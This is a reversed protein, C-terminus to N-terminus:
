SVSTALPWRRGPRAEQASAPSAAPIHWQDHGRHGSRGATPHRPPPTTVAAPHRPPPAAGAAWCGTHLRCQPAQHTERLIKTELCGSPLRVYTSETRPSLCTRLVRTGFRSAAPGPCARPRAGAWAPPHEAAEAWVRLLCARIVVHKLPCSSHPQLIHGHAQPRQQSVGGAGDGLTSQDRFRGETAESTLSPIAQAAKEHGRDGEGPSWAALQGCALSPHQRQWPCAPFSPPSHPLPATPLGPPSGDAHPDGPPHAAELPTSSQQLSFPARNALFPPRHGTFSANM